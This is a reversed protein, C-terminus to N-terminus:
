GRRGGYSLRALVVGHGVLLVTAGLIAGPLTPAEDFPVLGFGGSWQAFTGVLQLRSRVALVSAGAALVGLGVVAGGLVDRQSRTLSAGLAFGLSGVGELLVFGILAVASPVRQVDVLYLLFWDGHFVYFYLGVPLTIWFTAIAFAGFSRTLLPPRPSVRLEGRSALAAAVGSAFTFCILTPLPVRARAYCEGRRASTDARISGRARPVASCRRDVPCM